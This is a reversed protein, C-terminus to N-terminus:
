PIDSRKTVHNKFILLVRSSVLNNLEFNPYSLRCLKCHVFSLVGKRIEENIPYSFRKIGSENPKLHTDPWYQRVPQLCFGLTSPDIILKKCGCLWIIGNVDRFFDLVIEQIRCNYGKNLYAIIKGAEKEYQLLATGSQKFIEIADPRSTDVCCKQIDNEKEADESSLSNIFLAFNAKNNKELAFYYLRVVSPRGSACRIYRQLMTYPINENTVMKSEFQLWDQISKEMDQEKEGSYRLIISISDFINNEESHRYKFIKNKFMYNNINTSCNVRGASNTHLYYIKDSYYLTEPINIELTEISAKPAKMLCELFSFGPKINIGKYYDKIVPDLKLQEKIKKHRHALVNEEDLSM